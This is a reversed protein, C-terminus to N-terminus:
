QIDPNNEFGKETLEVWQKTTDDFNLANMVTEKDFFALGISHLNHQYECIYTVQEIEPPTNNLQEKATEYESGLTDLFDYGNNDLVPYRNYKVIWTNLVPQVVSNWHASQANSNTFQSNDYLASAVEGWDNYADALTDCQEQLSVYDPNPLMEIHETCNEDPCKQNGYVSDSYAVCKSVITDFVEQNFAVKYIGYKTGNNTNEVTELYVYAIAMLEHETLSISWESKLSNKREDTAFSTQYITSPAPKTRELYVLDSYTLNDYDFYLSDILSNFENQKNELATNLYGLGTQYQSSVDVLGGANVRASKDTDDGSIVILISGFIFVFSIVFMIIVIVIPNILFAVTNVAVNGVIKSVTVVSKVTFATTRYIATGTGKIASGVTKITRKTTRVTRKVAKISNKGKKAGRYALKVTETGTDSVDNKNIKKDFPNAKSVANKFTSKIKGKLISKKKSLSTM